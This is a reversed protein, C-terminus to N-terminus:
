QLPGAHEQIIEVLTEIHAPRDNLAPIYDFREGGNALFLERNQMNIEELTELCDASFGPCIVSVSKLGNASLKELTKDTYPQLWPRAGFRSQFTLTWSDEALRLREATLRATKHCECYYPDGARFYSQPIGHFSFLLKETRGHRSQHETVSDSLAAIYRPHDHYHKIFNLGPVNRWTKLIGTVAEFIAGTTASAYQPYLPLVIVRTARARRLRNLAGSISPQGYRMALRIQFIGPFRQELSKRIAQAQKRAIDMLPSGSATWIKRYAAASRRPRVRLIVGHLIPRWLLAPLEIVRPDSLFEGLYRRVAGSTPAEPTGLNVLLVGICPKANHDYDSDGVYQKLGLM